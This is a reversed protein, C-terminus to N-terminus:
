LAVLVIKTGHYHRFSEEALEVVNKNMLEKSCRTIHEVIKSGGLLKKAEEVFPPFFAINVPTLSRNYKKLTMLADVEIEIDFIM